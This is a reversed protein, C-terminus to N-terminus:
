EIEGEFVAERMSIVRYYVGFMEELERLKHANGSAVVLTPKETM